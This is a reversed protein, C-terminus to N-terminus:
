RLRSKRRSTHRPAAIRKQDPRVKRRLGAQQGYFKALALDEATDIDVSRERPMIHLRLPRGYFGRERRFADIFVSYTSGNGAFYRGTAAARRNVLEPFLPIVLRDAEERLAQHVPQSFETAAMAFECERRRLLTLTARIDAATRLPATAYLVTLTDYSEGQRRLRDLLELCVDVVTAEDTGLAPPRSDIEGGWKKAIRAIAADDTSVIIRDFIAAAQAAAMTHAIIPKGFFDVINKRPLRKSGGRAPIVALHRPADSSTPM